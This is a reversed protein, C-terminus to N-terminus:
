DGHTCKSKFHDPVTISVSLLHGNPRIAHCEDGEVEDDGGDITIGKEGIEVRPVIDPPNAIAIASGHRPGVGM